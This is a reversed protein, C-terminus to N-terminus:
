LEELLTSCCKKPIWRGKSGNETVQFFFEKKEM